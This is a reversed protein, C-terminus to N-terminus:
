LWAEILKRLDEKPIYLDANMGAKKAAEVNSLSDDIFLLEEPKRGIRRIAELFIEQGPKMLHMECSIFEEKFVTKYDLGKEEWIKHSRNMAIPNNNSLIFLDYKRSLEKLLDVKYDDMGTLFVDICKDIMDPTSGERSEKLVETRFEDATIKGEEMDGYIGRQRWKDLIDTIREFGLQEKFANVCADFDLDILVGGLDFVIAKIM